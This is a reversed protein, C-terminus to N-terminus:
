CIEHTKFSTVVMMAMFPRTIVYNRIYFFSVMVKLEVIMDAFTHRIQPCTHGLTQRQKHLANLATHSTPPELPSHPGNDREQFYQMNIHWCKRLECSTYITYLCTTKDHTQQQTRANKETYTFQFVVASILLEIAVIYM